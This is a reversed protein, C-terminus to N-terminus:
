SDSDLRALSPSGEWAGGGDLLVRLLTGTAEVVGPQMSGHPPFSPSEPVIVRAGPPFEASAAIEIAEVRQGISRAMCQLLAFDDAGRLAKLAEEKSAAEEAAVIDAPGPVTGEPKSALHRGVMKKAMPAIEGVLQHLLIVDDCGEFYAVARATELERSM